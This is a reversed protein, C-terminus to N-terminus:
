TVAPMHIWPMPSYKKKSKAIMIVAPMRGASRAATM